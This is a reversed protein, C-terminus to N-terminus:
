YIKIKNLAKANIILDDELQDLYKIKKRNLILAKINDKEIEFPSLDGKIKYKKIDLLYLLKEDEFVDFKTNLLYNYTSIDTPIKKKLQDFYIWSSDNIFYEKAYLLCYNTLEDIDNKNNSRFIKFLRKINPAIKDIILFRGMFINQNLRYQNKNKEYYNLLENLEIITDFKQNLLQQQYENIVLSEEFKKVSEKIRESKVKININAHHHLIKKRIWKDIYTNIFFVSDQINVPMKNYVEYDFLDQNYVSALVKADPADNCSFIVFPLLFILSKLSM